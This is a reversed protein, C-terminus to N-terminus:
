ARLVIMGVNTNMMEVATSSSSQSVHGIVSHQSSSSGSVHGIVSRVLETSIYGQENKEM